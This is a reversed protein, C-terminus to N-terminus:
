YRVMKTSGTSTGNPFIQGWQKDDKVFNIEYKFNLEGSLGKLLSADIGEIDTESLSAKDEKTIIYPPVSNTAVKLVCGNMNSLKNPFFNTNKSVNVLKPVGCSDKLFPHYTYLSVGSEELIFAIVNLVYKKWLEKFMEEIEIKNLVGMSIVLFKQLNQTKLFKTFEGILELNELVILNIANQTDNENFNDLNEMKVSRNQLKKTIEELLGQFSRFYQPNSLSKYVNFYLTDTDSSLIELIADALLDTADLNDLQLKKQNLTVSQLFVLILFYKIM